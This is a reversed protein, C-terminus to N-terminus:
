RIPNLVWASIVAALVSVILFGLMPRDTFFKSMDRARETLLRSEPDM